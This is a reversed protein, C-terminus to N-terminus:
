SIGVACLSAKRKTILFFFHWLLVAWRIQTLCRCCAAADRCGSCVRKWGRTCLSGLAIARVWLRGCCPLKQLGLRNIGWVLMRAAQTNECIL